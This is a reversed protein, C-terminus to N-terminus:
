VFTLRSSVFSPMIMVTVLLPRISENHTCDNWGKEKARFSFLRLDDDDICNRGAAGGLRRTKDGNIMRRSSSIVIEFAAFFSVFMVIFVIFM